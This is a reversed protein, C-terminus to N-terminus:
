RRDDSLPTQEDAEPTNREGPDKWDEPRDADEPKRLPDYKKPDDPDLMPKETGPMPKTPDSGQPRDQFSSDTSM